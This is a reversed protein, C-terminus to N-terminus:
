GPPANMIRKLTEIQAAMQEETLVPAERPGPHNEGRFGPFYDYWNGGGAAAAITGFRFDDNQSGKPEM